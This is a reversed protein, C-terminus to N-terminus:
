GAEVAWKVLGSIEKEKRMERMGRSDWPGVGPAAEKWNTGVLKILKCDGEGM